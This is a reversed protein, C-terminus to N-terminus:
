CITLLLTIHLSPSRRDLPKTTTPAAGTNEKGEEDKQIDPMNPAETEQNKWVLRTGSGAKQHQSPPRVALLLLVSIAFETSIAGSNAFCSSQPRAFAFYRAREWLVSGGAHVM